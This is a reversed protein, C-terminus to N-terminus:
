TLEVEEVTAFSMSTLPKCYDFISDDDDNPQQAPSWLIEKVAAIKPWLLFITQSCCGM